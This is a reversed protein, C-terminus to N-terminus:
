PASSAPKELNFFPKLQVNSRYDDFANDKMLERFIQPPYLDKAKELFIAADESHKLQLSALAAVLAQEGTMATIASVSPAKKAPDNQLKTLQEKASLLSQSAAPTARLMGKHLLSVATAYTGKSRLLDGWIAYVEADNPHDAAFHKMENGAALVPDTFQGGDPAGPITKGVNILALILRAQGALDDKSIAHNAADEAIATEGAKYASEAILFDVGSLGSQAEEVKQFDVMAEHYKGEGMKAFASDLLAESDPLPFEGELKIHRAEVEPHPILKQGFYFGLLFIGLVGVVISGWFTVQQIGFHVTSKQSRSHKNKNRRDERSKQHARDRESSRRRRRSGRGSDAHGQHYEPNEPMVKGVFQNNTESSFDSDLGTASSLDRVTTDESPNTSHPNSSQQDNM